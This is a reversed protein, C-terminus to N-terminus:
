RAGISGVASALGGISRGMPDIGSPSTGPPPGGPSLPQTGSPGLSPGGPNSGPPATGPPPGGPSLPQTGSPGLPAGPVPTPPAPPPTAAASAGGGCGGASEFPSDSPNWFKYDEYLKYFNNTAKLAAYDLANARDLLQQAVAPDYTSAHPESPDYRPATSGPEYADPHDYNWRRAQYQVFEKNAQSFAQDADIASKMADRVQQATPDNRLPLQTPPRSAQPVSPSGAPDCPPRPPPPPEDPHPSPDAGPTGNNAPGNSSPPTKPSSKPSSSGGMSGGPGTGTSSLPSAPPPEPPPRLENLLAARRGWRSYQLTMLLLPLTAVFGSVIAQVLCMHKTANAIDRAKRHPTYTTWDPHWSNFYIDNAAKLFNIAQPFAMCLHFEFSMIALTEVVYIKAHEALQGGLGNAMGLADGTQPDIRWWGHFGAVGDGVSANPAVVVYGRDLDQALDARVDSPLGTRDLASREAPKVTLWDRSRAFAEGVNGGAPRLEFVGEGNTDIVGQELRVAFADNVALDVGVENAVIDTADRVSLDNDAAVLYTHRTMINPRNYFMHAGSRNVQLRAAALPTLMSVGPGSDTLQQKGKQLDVSFEDRVIDSLLERNGLANASVVHAIFAPDLECTLPVIETHSSLAMSRDLKKTEDMVLAPASSARRAAGLLDFVTRRITRTPEGPVRIEYELWVASLAAQTDVNPKSRHGLAQALASGLGAMPGGDGGQTAPDDGSDLLSASAVVKRGVSLMVVWQKQSLFSSHWDAIPESDGSVANLLETPWFQLAVRETILDAPRLAHEIAYRQKLVGSSSSQESIVRFTIEHHMEAPLENVRMTETAPIVADTPKGDSDLLDMDVWGGADQRQVWWHDRLARMAADFRKTWDVIPDPRGVTALLRQTQDEVRTQLSTAVRDLMAQQTRLTEALAFADLQYRAAVTQVTADRVPAKSSAKTGFAIARDAVLDPLREKAISQPLQRRALRVTQGAKELLAAVLLARDLSNGQRDMLVGIPGRLEGLYPAWYTNNRVWQLLARPDRGVTRVIYDPDWSDRPSEREDDEVARFSNDLAAVREQPTLSRSRISAPGVEFISPILLAICITLAIAQYTTRRPSGERLRPIGARVVAVIWGLPLIVFAGVFAGQLVRPLVQFLGHGALVDRLLLGSLVAHAFAIAGYATLAAVIWRTRSRRTLRWLVVGAVIVGVAVIATLMRMLMM